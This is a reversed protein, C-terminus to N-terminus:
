GAKAAPQRSKGKRRKRNARPAFSQILVRLGEDGVTTAAEDRNLWRYEREDAEPWTKAQRKVLLPFVRVECPIAGDEGDLQKDYGFTGIAKAGVDGRVGAEEYAERAAARAPKMGRM